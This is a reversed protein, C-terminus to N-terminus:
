QSLLPLDSALCTGMHMYCTCVVLALTCSICICLIRCLTISILLCIYSELVSSSTSQLFQVLGPRHARKRAPWRCPRTCSYLQVVPTPIYIWGRIQSPGPQVQLRSTSGPARVLIWLREDSAGAHRLILWNRDSCRRVQVAHFYLKWGSM